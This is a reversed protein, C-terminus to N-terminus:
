IRAAQSLRDRNKSFASRDYVRDIGLRISDLQEM